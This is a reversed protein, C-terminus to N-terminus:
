PSKAGRNALWVEKNRFMWEILARIEDRERAVQISIRGHEELRRRRRAIGRRESLTGYYAAWDRYDSWDVYRGPLCLYPKRLQAAIVQHLLSNVRIRSLVFLDARRSRNQWALQAYCGAQPSDEVLYDVYDGGGAVAVEATWFREYSVIVAPWVLVLKDDRWVFIFRLQGNRMLKNCLCWIWEFSQIIMPKCARRYLDDWAYALRQLEGQVTVIQIRPSADTLDAQVSM